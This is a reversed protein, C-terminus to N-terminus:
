VGSREGSVAPGPFFFLGVPNAPDTVDVVAVGGPDNSNGNVGVIAYENGEEDTYGWLNSLDSNRAAQYDYRGLETINIQAKSTGPDLLFLTGVIVAALTHKFIM